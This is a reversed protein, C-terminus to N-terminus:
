SPCDSVCIALPSITEIILEEREESVLETTEERVMTEEDSNTSIFRVGTLSDSNRSTPLVAVMFPPMVEVVRLDQTEGFDSSDVHGEAGSNALM